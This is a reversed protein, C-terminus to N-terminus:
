DSVKKIGYSRGDARGAIYNQADKKRRFMVVGKEDRHYVLQSGEQVVVVYVM